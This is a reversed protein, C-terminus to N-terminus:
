PPQVAAPDSQNMLVMLILLVRLDAWGGKENDPNKLFGELEASNKSRAGDPAASCELVRGTFFPLITDAYNPNRGKGGRM